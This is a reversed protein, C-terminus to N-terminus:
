SVIKLADKSFHKLLSGELQIKIGLAINRISIDDQMELVEQLREAYHKHFSLNYLPEGDCDRSYEAVFMRIGHEEISPCDVEVLTGLPIEHLKEMNNERVSKGNCEIQNGVLMRELDM